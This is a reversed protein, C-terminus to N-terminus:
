PHDTVAVITTQGKGPGSIWFVRWAAPTNNEVYSEWVDSSGDSAKMVSYKHSHLGGNKPDIEILGFCKAIKKRKREDTDLAAFQDRAEDSFRLKFAM